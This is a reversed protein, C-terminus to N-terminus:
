FCRRNYSLKIANHIITKVNQLIYNVIFNLNSPPKRIFYLKRHYKSKDILKIIVVIVTFKMRFPVIGVLETKPDMVPKEIAKIIMYAVLFDRMLHIATISAVIVTGIANTPITAKDKEKSEILKDTQLM